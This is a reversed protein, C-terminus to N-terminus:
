LVCIKQQLMTELQISWQFVKMGWVVAELRNSSRPRSATKPHTADMQTTTSWLPHPCLWVAPTARPKKTTAGLSGALCCITLLQGWSITIVHRFEKIILMKIILQRTCWHWTWDKVQKTRSWLFPVCRNEQGWSSWSQTEGPSTSWWDGKLVINTTIYMCSLDSVYDCSDCKFWGRVVHEQKM